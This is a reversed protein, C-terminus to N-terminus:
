RSARHLAEARAKLAAAHREFGDQVRQIPTAFSLPGHLREFTSYSTAEDDLRTLEQLRRGRVLGMTGIPGRFQYELVAKRDDHQDPGELRTVRETSRASGGTHWRVKLLIPDGVQLPRHRPRRVSVVFPNWEGYADTDLMVEWVLAIPAEIVEAAQASPM